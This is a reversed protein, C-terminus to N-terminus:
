SRATTVGTERGGRGSGQVGAGPRQVAAGGATAARSALRYDSPAAGYQAKFSRSFHSADSFGWRHAIASIPRDGDTLEERARALRRVRVVEGVTQGTANFIRNVTRVSVGHAAAIDAPTMADLLHREIYRDMEARLAPQAMSTAPADGGSRLAGIFLEQTANRAASIAGQDLEPLAASLSELYSTLLRTAPKAGDLMVGGSMMARGSVEELAARPILLSRKALPEWVTFRAPVTSDWAVADGPKLVAEAANQAVTERGALTILVVVFEGDTRGIERRTRSGSCPSCECDVLALDDIWLRRASASFRPDAVTSPVAVSWPLHTASLIERWEDTAATRRGSTAWTEAGRGM